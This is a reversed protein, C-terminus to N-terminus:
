NALTSARVTFLCTISAGIFVNLIAVSVCDRSFMLCANALEGGNGGGASGGLWGCGHGVGGGGGGALFINVAGSEGRILGLVGSM